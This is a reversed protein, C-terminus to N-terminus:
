LCFLKIGSNFDSDLDFDDYMCENEQFDPEQLLSVLLLTLSNLWQVQQDVIRLLVDLGQKSLLSLRKKLHKLLKVFLLNKISYFM